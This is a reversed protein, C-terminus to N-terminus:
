YFNIGILPRTYFFWVFLSRNSTLIKQAGFYKVADYHEKITYEAKGNESSTGFIEFCLAFHGGLINASTSVANKIAIFTKRHLTGEFYNEIVFIFYINSEQIKKIM